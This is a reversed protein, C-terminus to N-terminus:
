WRRSQLPERWYGNINLTSELERLMRTGKKKKAVSKDVMNECACSECSDSAGPMEENHSHLIPSVFSFAGPVKDNTERRKRDEDVQSQNWHLYRQFRATFMTTCQKYGNSHKWETTSSVSTNTDSERLRNVQASITLHSLNSNTKLNHATRVSLEDDVDIVEEDDSEEDSYQQMDFIPNTTNHSPENSQQMAIAHNYYDWYISTRSSTSTEIVEEDVSYQQMSMFTPRNLNAQKTAQKYVDFISTM